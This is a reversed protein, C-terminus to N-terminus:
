INLLMCEAYVLLLVLGMPSLKQRTLADGLTMVVVNTPQFLWVIVPTTTM